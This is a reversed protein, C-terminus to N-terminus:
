KKSEKEMNKIEYKHAVHCIDSVYHALLKEDSFNNYYERKKIIASAKKQVHPEDAYWFNGHAIEVAEQFIKIKM